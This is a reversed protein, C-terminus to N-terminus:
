SKFEKYTKKGALFKNIGKAAKRGEAIAWVVLSQGRVMDGAAFVGKVNTMKNQDTIVNGRDSVNVGLQQIPGEKEPHLFGMALLALDVKLNFESDPVIKMSPPNSSNPVNDWAVKVCELNKLKGNEGTFSTTMIEYDRIGGEEHSSSTRMIMPWEPWPNSDIRLEPPKPMIEFQHIAKAGQRITTGLCDSGTDGGGLIVVNKGAATIKPNSTSNGVIALNQQTLYDMAFHVGDLERGSVNLDRPVTSGGALCIADYKQFLESSNTDVGVSIGTKFIVGEQEMQNIRRNVIDKDLKFDPIGFRLLGGPESAREFVTTAHGARNILQAAALGSPGSGIVAVAKGTREIPKIPKIWGEKWGRDAIAKEIHEIAVADSNINLVCSAECPAPCIRGTFEPFNNTAHLINLANEWEGLYVMHNWDPIINGLPCGSHCFPVACDMCRGGQESAEKDSWQNQFEKFDKIRQKVSNKSPLKRNFDIFGTTKGM